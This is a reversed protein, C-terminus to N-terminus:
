LDLIGSSNSDSPVGLPRRSGSGATCLSVWLELLACLGMGQGHSDAPIPCWWRETCVTCRRVAKVASIGVQEALSLLLLM